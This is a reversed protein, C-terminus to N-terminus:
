QLVRFPLYRAGRLQGLSWTVADPDTLEFRPYRRIFEEIAIRVELRALHSGLCRHIGVGFTLHRNRPRDIIFRDPEDFVEPDRNASPYGVLVWDDKKVPCGHLEVDETAMRAMNLPAYFRLFEDLATSMLDPEHVLRSLDDPHTALHWLSSTITSWTTGIGAILLMMITGIVRGPTAKEGDIELNLLYTTLDDRPNAIHDEIQGMFYGYMEDYLKQRVVPDMQSTATPFNTYARYRDSEEPPFGLLLAIVGPSIFQAYEGGADFQQRGDLKDLLSGCLQRVESELKNVVGPAFASLLMRRAAQHFPPDTTVPPLLGLSALEPPTAVHKNVNVVVQRSSFHATDKAVDVCDDYRTVFWGGGYRDTHAVPCRERLDSWIGHADATWQPDFHDWDTAFDEVRAGDPTPHPTLLDWESDVGDVDNTHPKVNM